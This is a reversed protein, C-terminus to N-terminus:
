PIIVQGDKADSYTVTQITEGKENLLRVTDGSNLLKATMESVLTVSTGEKLVGTLKWTTNEDDKIEWGTLNATTDGSNKVTFSEKYDDEGDPNPLLSSIRVIAKHTHISNNHDDPEVATNKCSSILAVMTIATTITLLNKM